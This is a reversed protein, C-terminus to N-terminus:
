AAQLEIVYQQERVHMEVDRPSIQALVKRIDDAARVTFNDFGKHSLLAHIAPELSALVRDVPGSLILGPLDRSRARLFGGEADELTVTLVAPQDTM